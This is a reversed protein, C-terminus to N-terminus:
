GSRREPRKVAWSLWVGDLKLRLDYHLGTAEHKQVLFGNGTAPKSAALPGATKTFDRKSLYTALSDAAPAAKSLSRAM